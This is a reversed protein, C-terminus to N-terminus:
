YGQLLQPLRETIGKLREKGSFGRLERFRTDILNEIEERTLQFERKANTRPDLLEFRLHDAHVFTSAQVRSGDITVMTQYMSNNLKLPDSSDEKKSIRPLIPSMETPPLRDEAVM